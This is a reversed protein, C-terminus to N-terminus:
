LYGSVQQAHTEAGCFVCSFEEFEVTGDGDDIKDLLDMKETQDLARGLRAVIGAGGLM